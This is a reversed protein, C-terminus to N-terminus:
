HDPSWWTRCDKGVRREESRMDRRLEVDVTRHSLKAYTQLAKESGTKLYIEMQKKAEPNQLSGTHLVPDSDGEIKVLPDFFRVRELLPMSIKLPDVKLVEQIIKDYSLKGTAELSKLINRVYKVDATEGKKPTMVNQYHETLQTSTPYFIRGIGSSNFDNLVSKVTKGLEGRGVVDRFVDSIKLKEDGGGGGGGGVNNTPILQKETNSSYQSKDIITKIIFDTVEEIDIKGDNDIINAYDADHVFSPNEALFDQIFDYNTGDRTLLKKITGYDSEKWGTQDKKLIFDELLGSGKFWGGERGRHLFGRFQKAINEKYEDKELFGLDDGIVNQGNVTSPANVWNNWIDGRKDVLKGEQALRDRNQLAATYRAYKETANNWFPNKKFNVVEDYIADTVMNPNDVSNLQDYTDAFANQVLENRMNMDGPAVKQSAGEMKSAALTKMHENYVAQRSDMISKLFEVPPAVFGSQYEFPALPKEYRYAM